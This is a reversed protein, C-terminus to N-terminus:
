HGVPCLGRRLEDWKSSQQPLRCSKIGPLPESRYFTSQLLVPVPPFTVAPKRAAIGGIQVNAERQASPCYHWPLGRDLLMVHYCESSGAAGRATFGALRGRHHLERFICVVRRALIQSHQRTRWYVVRLRTLRFLKRFKDVTEDIHAVELTSKVEIAYLCAEVPFVGERENFLLPPLIDKNFIVVDIEGSSNGHSDMIIGAGLGFSPPLVPRLLQDIVLERLRGKV